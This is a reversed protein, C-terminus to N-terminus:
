SAVATRALEEWAERLFTLEIGTRQEGPSVRVDLRAPDERAPTVVSVGGRSRLFGYDGPAVVTLRFRGEADTIAGRSWPVDRGRPIARVGMGEVPSGSSDRLRGELVAPPNAAIRRAAPTPAPRSVCATMLVFATWLAALFSRALRM